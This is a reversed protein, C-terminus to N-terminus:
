SKIVLIDLDIIGYILNIKNMIKWNAFNITKIEEFDVLYVNRVRKGILIIKPTEEELITCGIKTFKVIMQNDCFKCVSILNHNLGDM